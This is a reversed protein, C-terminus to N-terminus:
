VGRDLDVGMWVAVSLAAVVAAITAFVVTALMPFDGPATGNLSLSPKIM